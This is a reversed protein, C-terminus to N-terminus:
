KLEALVRQAEALFPAKPQLAIAKQLAAKSQPAQKLHYHAMGLHFQVMEDNPLKRAVEALTRAAKQYDARRYQILGLAKEVQVDEPYIEKARTAAALAKASDGSQNASLIAFTRIAPGFAPYRSLIQDLTKLAANTDGKQQSAAVRAALAPLYNADAQLAQDILALQQAARAPDALPLFDLARKAAIASPLNGGSMALKLANEADTLRGQTYYAWGLDYAVSLDQPQKRSTEQLLALGWEQDKVDTSKSAIRGAIHAVQPDETDLKRANRALDLAKPSNKLNEDTIQALRAVATAFKPNAAIAKEYIAAAKDAKGSKEYISALRSLAVPDAPQEALRGELTSVAAADAKAPDINLLAVCKEVLAREAYSNTSQLARALSTRAAAEDGLMYQTIGLHALIEPEAPRGQAAKSLYGLAVPYDGRRAVIWGFTDAISPDIPRLEEARRAMTYAKELDKLRDAYIVALNNLGVVNDPNVALLKEYHEKARTYDRKEETIIAVMLLSTVDKPNRSLATQYKEVAADVQGTTYYIRALTTYATIADPNMGIVKELLEQAGKVDKQSYKLMAFQFVPEADNPAREIWKQVRQEAEAFKKDAVDIAILQNNALVDDPRSQLIGEFIKRAEATKGQVRLTDGVLFAAEVSNTFTKAARAYTALAEAPRNSARYATGLLIHARYHNTDRKLLENLLAIARAPEGKRISLESLLITAPTFKPDLALAQELESQARATENAALATSALQYRAPASKPYIKVLRDLETLAKDTNKQALHMEARLAIAEYHNPNRRLARDLASACKDYQKQDLALRASFIWAPLYDPAKSTIESLIANAGEFDRAQARIGAYRVRRASRIPSLEAAAKLEPEALEKKNLALYLNGLGWHALASKPDAAVAARLETEAGSINKERLALHGSAVHVLATNGTKQRLNSVYQRAAAIEEPKLATDIYVLLADENTLSRQLVFEAEARAEKAAGAALLIRALRARAEVDNTNARKLSTLLAGANNLMEDDYYIQALNRLAAVNTSQLRLVNIYEIEAKEYDNAAFYKDARELHRTARAQRSCGSAAFLLGALGVLLLWRSLNCHKM